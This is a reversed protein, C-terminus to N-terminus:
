HHSAHKCQITTYYSGRCCYLLLATTTTSTTHYHCYYCYNYCQLLYATTATGLLSRLPLNWGRFRTSTCRHLTTPPYHIIARHDTIFGLFWEM